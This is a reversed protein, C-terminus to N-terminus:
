IYEKKFRSVAALLAADNANSALIIRQKEIGFHSATEQARPSVLIWCCDKLWVHQEQPILRFLMELTENSTAVICRVPQQQWQRCMMEGDLPLAIRHYSQVYRVTAGRAQLTTNILERGGNGRIIVVLKGAIDQLQPLKLLGESRQDDPVVVDRQLWERLRSATAKGIAFLPQPIQEPPIQNQLANVSSSSVFILIDAQQLLQIDKPKLQVQQTTLLPQYLYSIGSEDLSMLLTDAKGAPRTILVTAEQTM